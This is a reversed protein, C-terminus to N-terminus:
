PRHWEATSPSITRVKSLTALIVIRTFTSELASRFVFHCSYATRNTNPPRIVAIAPIMALSNPGTTPPNNNAKGAIKGALAVSISFCSFCFFSSRPKSPVSRPLSAALTSAAPEAIPLMPSNTKARNTQCKKGRCRPQDTRVPPVTDQSIM